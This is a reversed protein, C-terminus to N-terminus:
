ECPSLLQIVCSMQESVTSLWFTYLPKIVFSNVLDAAILALALMNAYCIQTAGICGLNGIGEQSWHRM